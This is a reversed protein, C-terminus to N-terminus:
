ELDGPFPEDDLPVQRSETVHRSIGILPDDVHRDRCVWLDLQVEGDRVDAPELDLHELGKPPITVRVDNGPFILNRGMDYTRGDLKLEEEPIDEADVGHVKGVLFYDDAPKFGISVGSSAYGGAELPAKVTTVVSGDYRATATAVKDFNAHLRAMAHM